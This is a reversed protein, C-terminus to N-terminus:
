QDTQMRRVRRLGFFPFICMITGGIWLWNVLPNVHITLTARANEDIGLLTAYVERGLSFLTDVQAYTQDEFNAYLRRQPSLVGLPVGDKDAVILEAEVFRFNPKGDAGIQSEGEYLQNLKIQYLGIPAVQERALQLTYQEQYPGSFAIGLVILLVGIHTGHAALLSRVSFLQRNSAFLTVIGLIGALSSAAAVLAVPHTIGATWLGGALILATLFAAAPLKPQSFGLTGPSLKWKRFPCVLLLVALFTFLPLCTTNYFSIDLGSPNQPLRAAIFGPLFRANIKLTDIIVPWMTAILIIFSLALLLWAVLVLLGEKSTLDELPEAHPNPSRYLIPLPLLLLVFAVILFTPAVEGQFAYWMIVTFGALILANLTHALAQPPKKQDPGPACVAIALSLYVSALMFIILPTGVTGSGFAHLSQVVGSRVLYTAFFASITTLAMLFVNIRQLKGRRSGIVATHLYATSVLWPILSANEVPDWAWYGGWGLEMYAWWAGLIIGATLFAWAGLIFPRSAQEWSEEVPNNEKQIFLNGSLAQALALCGPVVFGGYGLFLVPPHFIMGPDQLLPNLGRGDKPVFDLTDFPNSWYALLLLFFGMIALFFLCFWLKTQTSLQKFAPLLVFAAGSIAVCWAWFLLSGDQGAWFATLRYFLPLTRDSYQAVYEVIFDHTAFAYLLIASALTTLLAITTIVFGSWAVPDSLRLPHPSTVTSGHRADLFLQLLIFLGGLITLFLGIDLLASAFSYLPMGDGAALQPM